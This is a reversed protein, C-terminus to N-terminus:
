CFHKVSSQPLRYASLVAKTRLLFRFILVLISVLWVGDDRQLREVLGATPSWIVNDELPDRLITGKDTHSHCSFYHWIYYWFLCQNKPPLDMNLHSAIGATVEWRGAEENQYLFLNASVKRSKLGTPTHVMIMHLGVNAIDNWPTSGRLPAKFICQNSQTTYLFFSEFQLCWKTGATRSSM